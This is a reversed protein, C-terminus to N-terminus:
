KVTIFKSSTARASFVGLGGRINTPLSANSGLLMNESFMVADDYARWFEYVEKPVRHLSVVASQGVRLQAVFHEGKYNQKSNFVPITVHEGAVTAEKCGMLAPLSGATSESNRITLYYYAPVDAPATFHLTTSRLTDNDSDATFTIDDIPTPEYMYCVSEAHMSKYDATIRYTKHPEGLMEATFYRYPPIHDTSRAGTMIVEREGDSITVKGWRIMKDMLDGGEPDPTIASTFMVAPHGGSDIWAEIVPVDARMDPEDGSCGALVMVAPLFIVLRNM